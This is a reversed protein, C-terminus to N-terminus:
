KGYANDRKSAPRSKDSSLRSFLRRLAHEREPPRDSLSDIRVVIATLNDKSGTTLAEQELCAIIEETTGGSGLIDAIRQHELEGSIGDSCLLFVDGVRLTIQTIHPNPVDDEDDMGLCQTLQSKTWRIHTEDGSSFDPDSRSLTRYLNDDTSLLSLTGERWVYVRSDGVNMAQSGGEHLYLAAVTSGARIFDSKRWTRILQNTERIYDNWQLPLLELSRNNLMELACMAAREGQQMGGMGDCVAYLQQAADSFQETTREDRLGGIVGEVLYGDQNSSRVRGASSFAAYSTKM